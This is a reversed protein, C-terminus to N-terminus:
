WVSLTMPSRVQFSRVMEGALTEKAGTPLTRFACFTNGCPRRVTNTSRKVLKSRCTVSFEAWWGRLDQCADSEGLISFLLCAFPCETHTAHVGCLTEYLGHVDMYVALFGFRHMASWQFVWRQGFISGVSNGLRHTAPSCVFSAPTPPQLMNHSVTSM